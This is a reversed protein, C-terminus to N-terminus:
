KVSVKETVGNKWIYRELTHQAGLDFQMYTQGCGSVLFQIQRSKPDRHWGFYWLGDGLNKPKPPAGLYNFRDGNKEFVFINIFGGSGSGPGTFVYEKKGDNNIDALYMLSIDDRPQSLEALSLDNKLKEDTSIQKKITEFAALSQKTNEALITKVQCEEALASTTSFIVLAALFSKM